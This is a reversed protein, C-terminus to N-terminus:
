MSSRLEGQDGIINQIKLGTIIIAGIVCFSVQLRKAILTSALLYFHGIM